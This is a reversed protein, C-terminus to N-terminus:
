TSSVNCAWFYTSMRWNFFFWITMTKRETKMQENWMARSNSLNMEFHLLAHILNIYTQVWVLGNMAISRIEFSDKSHKCDNENRECTSGKNTNQMRFFGISSFSLCWVNSEDNLFDHKKRQWQVFLHFLMWTWMHNSKIKKEIWKM